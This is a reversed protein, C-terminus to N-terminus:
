PAPTNQHFTHQPNHPLHRIMVNYIDREKFPKLLYDDFGVELFADNDPLTTDATLALVPINAKIPDKDLRIRKVVEIGSMRPMQLDLLVMDYNNSNFLEYAVAGDPAKDFRCKWRTLIKEILILNMEQDDAVLVYRGELFHGTMQEVERHTILVTQPSPVVHYTINCAFTSGTGPTSNVTITGNHLQLLGKTIALGLGAGNVAAIYPVKRRSFHEFVFPVAEAPIGRGTDTVTINVAAKGEKQKDVQMKVTIAGNDTYRIANDVLNILIQKLRLTDGTVQLQRNGEYVVSFQLEKRAAQVRLSTMTESFTQYLSFPQQLLMLEGKEIKSLDQVNNVMKMLMAAAREVTKLLERQEKELSTHSLQESFGVVANLPTRIEQNINNLIDIRAKIQEQMVEDKQLLQEKLKKIRFLAIILLPLMCMVALATIYFYLPM